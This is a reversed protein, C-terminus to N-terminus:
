TELKADFSKKWAPDNPGKSREGQVVDDSGEAAASTASAGRESEYMVDFEGEVDVIATGALGALVSWEGDSKIVNVTDFQEKLSTLRNNLADRVDIGTEGTFSTLKKGMDDLLETVVKQGLVLAKLSVNTQHMLARIKNKLENTDKVVTPKTGRHMLVIDLFDDFKIQADFEYGHSDSQFIEGM